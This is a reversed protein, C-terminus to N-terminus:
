DTWRFPRGIVVTMYPRSLSCDNFNLRHHIFPSARNDESPRTRPVQDVDDSIMERESATATEPFRTSLELPNLDM